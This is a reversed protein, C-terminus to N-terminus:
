RALAREVLAEDVCLEFAPATDIVGCSLMADRLREFADRPFRPTAAWLGLRQCRGLSGTLVEAPLDPFYPAVTAAIEAPPAATIWALTAAMARVMAEFAAGKAAINAETSYLATYATPGRDAQAYWVAGGRAELQTVFPEFMQALDLRGAAVADANQAMSRDAVRKPMAGTDIGLRHLDDLLCWVPTPVESVTGLRLAPLDRLSFGAPKPGRGLLMFPDRMVVACFSRLPSAPDRAREMIVRMPGSWAVDVKGSLLNAAATPPDGASELRLDIGEGAFAGRALAAYFPSYFVARFPENLVIKQM